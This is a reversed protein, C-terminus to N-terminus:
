IDAYTFSWYGLGAVFIAWVIFFIVTGNEGLLKKFGEIKAMNWVAPPKVIAIVVVAIAYVWAIIALLLYIDMRACKREQLALRTGAEVAYRGM